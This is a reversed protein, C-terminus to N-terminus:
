TQDAVRVPAGDTLLPVNSVAITAGAPIVGEPLEVWGNAGLIEAVKHERAKGDVISFFKNLGAVSYLAARPVAIVPAKAQTVLRVQVFSGPRLRADPTVLRAEATLTRSRPDLTPNLERVVAQFEAGPVAETTFRLTTGVKVESVASEPVDVRLRLPSTKVLTYIPVNEKIYQGPSVHKQQVIGDFPAVVKADRLRKEALKVEAQLSRVLALQTRFDDQTAEYAAVRARYMKELENFREQSVDGTKVLKEANEYKSKADEMQAKAQRTLPTSDPIREQGPEMGIRAMAQALSARTRELQLALETTDLEAIVQGKRVPQGFDAALHLVRGGVESSATTIEDAQLSGTVMIAREVTRAEARATKVAIPEAPKKSAASASAPPQKSCAGTLLAAAIAAAAIRGRM